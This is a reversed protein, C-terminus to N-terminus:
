YYLIIIIYIFTRIRARIFAFIKILFYIIVLTIFILIFIEGEGDDNYPDPNCYPAPLGAQVTRYRVGVGRITCYATYALLQTLVSLKHTHM